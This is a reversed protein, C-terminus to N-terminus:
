RGCTDKADPYINGFKSNNQISFATIVDTDTYYHYDDPPPEPDPPEEEHFTIIGIGLQNLITINSQRQDRGQEPPWPQIGLDAQELFMAFPLNKHTLSGMHYRLEGNVRADFLAAETATMAYMRGQFRFYAIPELLIKYGEGILEDYPIGVTEAIYRVTGEDTFYSRIFDITSAGNERIIREMKLDDPLVHNNYGGSKRELSYGQNKYQLKSRIQFCTDIQGSWDRNAMDFPVSVQEGDKLITIRVGDDGGNWINDETGEGINGGGGNINPDGAALACSLFLCAALLFSLIRKM